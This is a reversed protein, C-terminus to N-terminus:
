AREVVSDCDMVRVAGASELDFDNLEVNEDVTVTSRDTVSLSGFDFDTDSVNVTNGVIVAEAELIGEWVLVLSLDTVFVFTQVKVGDQCGVSVPSSVIVTSIVGELVSSELAVSVAVMVGGGVTVGDDTDDAVMDTVERERDSVTRGFIVSENVEDGEGTRDTDSEGVFVISTTIESVNVFEVESMAVCLVVRCDVDLLESDSM